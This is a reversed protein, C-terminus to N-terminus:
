LVSTEVPIRLMLETDPLELRDAFIMWGLVSPHLKPRVTNYPLQQTVAQVV